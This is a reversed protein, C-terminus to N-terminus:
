LRSCFNSVTLKLLLVLVSVGETKCKIPLKRDEVQHKQKTIGLNDKLSWKVSSGAAIKM